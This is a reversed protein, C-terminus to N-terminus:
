PLLLIKGKTARSHLARHADAAQALPFTRDIRIHLKGARMWEFLDNARQLLEARNATYHALMPRTLFLSGKANLVQPDLPPVPGSSAGFLVMLGRPRLCNLSKDFTTKGVSDYVVDVGKGDTLQKVVVEFDTETYLIVDDAGVRKALMAKDETSVTGIVRAGRAKAIQVLLLGVGGAAAHVLATDGPKLPFTDCALYHATMGQLMVAAAQQANVGEPVPVLRWAPVIAYEAYAGLASAYAVRDGPKVETVDAGVADVVGAAEQGLVFPLPVKYMGSRQYTDIYNVGSAELKVRAEGPNPEPLAIDEYQLVEPGGITHVRIAKM